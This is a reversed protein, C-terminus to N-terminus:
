PTLAECGPRYLQGASTSYGQDLLLERTATDTIHLPQCRKMQELEVESPDDTNVGVFIGVTLCAIFTVHLWGGHTRGYRGFDKM